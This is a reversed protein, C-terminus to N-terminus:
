NLGILRKLSAMITLKRKLDDSAFYRVYGNEGSLLEYAVVGHLVHNGQEALALNEQTASKVAFHNIHPIGSYESAETPLYNRTSLSKGNIGDFRSDNTIQMRKCLINKSKPSMYQLDMLGRTTGSTSGLKGFGLMSALSCLLITPVKYREPLLWSSVYGGLGGLIGGGIGGATSYKLWSDYRQVSDQTLDHSTIEKNHVNWVVLAKVYGSSSKEISYLIKGGVPIDYPTDSNKYYFGAAYHRTKEIQRTTTNSSGKHHNSNIISSYDNAIGLHDKKYHTETETETYTRTFANRYEITKNDPTIYYVGALDDERAAGVAVISQVVSVILLIRIIKKM